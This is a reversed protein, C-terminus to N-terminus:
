VVEHMFIAEMFVEEKCHFNNKKPNKKGEYMSYYQYTFIYSACFVVACAIEVAAFTLAFAV